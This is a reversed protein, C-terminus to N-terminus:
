CRDSKEDSESDGPREGVDVEVLDAREVIDVYTAPVNM